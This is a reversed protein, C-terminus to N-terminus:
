NGSLTLDSPMTGSCISQNSLVTGGIAQGMEIGQNDVTNNYTGLAGTTSFLRGSLTCGDGMSLAGNAILSGVMTTGAALAAAGNAIWYVNGAQAGNKLIVSSSAGTTFAGGFKFIFLANPDGQADLFLNGAISGAGGIDYVRPLLIEGGGFAAAHNTVTPSIAAIQNYAVILDSSAQATLADGIHISGAVTSPATFGTIAGVNTGISGNITSVATNSIAGAVTFLSFGAAAGFNPSCQSWGLSVSLFCLSLLLSNAPNCRITSKKM